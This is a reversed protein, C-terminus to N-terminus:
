KDILMIDTAKLNFKLNRRAKFRILLLDSTGTLTERNGRNVFTPYLAKDGNTHLRDKTLNDMEKINLTETGIYEYDATSYPLAFGFANVANLDTGSVRIEVTEGAKYVQKAATLTINGQITDPRRFRIGGDLATAVASVDYADILNNRNLDGNGIYGDFDADGKRLGMYNIYSMLDNDDIKGDNNIDGALLSESGPVKFVYLERGSGFNGVGETVTMKIYRAQPHDPFSFVKPENNRQWEFAGADIWTNKDFGYSVTGKLINGNGANERPIYHFKDLNIISKLDIVLDFPIANLNYRTHWIEGEEFDFLLSLTRGQNECTTEGTIGQVAFELPNNKTRAAIQTWESVGNKGVSRLKFTYDTEPTLDEFLLATDRITTYIMGNFEIEYYQADDVATWSPTLRYAEANADKVSADKVSANDHASVNKNATMSGIGCASVGTCSVVVENDAVNTEGVKIMLVPNKIVAVKEADSGSTSFRNINPQADYYYADTQNEYDQLSLAKRLRVKKRGATATVKKPAASVNILFETSKNKVFGDFDGVSPHVTVILNNRVDLAAEILTTVGQGRRYSETKGDDDYETFSSQLHPYIEYCRRHADIESVTNNPNALPIIAGNRVFVPLKWFPADFSNIVCGGQYKDGTFYDIWEGEPLYIGNRIDNGKDDAKLAKYVPAVLFWPGYMFQYRTAKGLTYESRESLFMPRIMPLGDTAEKAISYTYPTLMSKLKLYSRNVSAAPEGLAQPYKANQGWGDMNLQLPTFTKWQFDRMNVIPNKGGFIGDMDSTIYPIGSLGAGIYTPIHFRIYEWVGGTQDGTWVAAYRQTGAWGDLTIIFPRADSGNATLINAADSIGHLGFSYGAGVWAVDTKLVRVGADRVEKVLDRQLLAEVGEKPHLDSQTWLGIEVGKSHAYDTLSRLNAINGDLTTTQGYGAGYGDNPLLWGLPMDNNLYRDIVARASFMYNNNEGNLSEKVGGNDKQSERYFKGDEFRVGITDEKWYDRNYANLHGEYFAFKPLLAPAGTLQYYDNLLAAAGDNVMIFIDLYDTEHYLQVINKDSACFDYKGKKFTHWMLGYGATSWYFPCPSAVGRDTWSNQNEIAIVAGRHSFRGNQVGGGYFYEDESATLFVSTRAPDYEVPNSLEIVTRETKKDIIKFLSTKKNLIVAIKQSAIIFEDDKVSVKIDEVQRRADDDLIVAEPSAEPNRVAGGKKDCFLRVINDGYFDFVIKSGDSLQAEAVTSSVTKVGAVQASVNMNLMLVLILYIINKM